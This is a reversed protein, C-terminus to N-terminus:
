PLREIINMAASNTIALFQFCGLYGKVQKLNYIEDVAGNESGMFLTVYGTFMNKVLLSVDFDEARTYILTLTNYVGQCHVGEDFGNPCDLVGNCLQSLHVCASVGHCAVHNLACKMEVEEPGQMSSIRSKMRM